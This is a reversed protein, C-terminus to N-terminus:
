GNSAGKEFQAFYQRALGEMFRSFAGHPVRGEVDSFLHLEIRANLDEPLSISREVPRIVKRPRPM